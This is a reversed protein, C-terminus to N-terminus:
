SAQLGSGRKGVASEPARIRRIWGILEEVRFPKPMFATAGAEYGKRVHVEDDETSIILILVEKLSGNRKIRELLQLGDMDPLTTDFLILDIEPHAEVKALAEWATFAQIVRTGAEEFPALARKYIRQMIRSDEVVLIARPIM